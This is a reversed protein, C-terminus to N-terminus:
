VEKTLKELKEHTPYDLDIGAGLTANLLDTIVNLTFGWIKYNKYMLFPFRIVGGGYEAGLEMEFYEYQDLQMFAKLPADFIAAIEGDDPSLKLTNNAVAVFPTVSIDRRRPSSTPMTALLTVADSDLGIEEQAERLATQMLDEDVRDWMGGPFAVEGAHSKLHFARQTLIVQPDDDHGHLVMLVAAAIHTNKPDPKPRKLPFKHLHNAIMTLM